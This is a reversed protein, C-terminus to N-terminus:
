KAKVSLTVQFRAVPDDSHSPVTVIVEVPRNEREGSQVAKTMLERIAAGDRCIFHADGDPRRLFDAQVDKIVFSVQKGTEQKITRAADLVPLGGTLDAGTALVGFYMSGLHNRTRRRLPIRVITEDPSHTVVTPRVYHILPIKLLGFLRLSLTQRWTPGTM